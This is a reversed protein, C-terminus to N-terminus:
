NEIITDVIDFHYREAMREASYQTKRRWSACKLGDFYYGKDDHKLVYRRIVKGDRYLEATTISTRMKGEAPIRRYAIVIM